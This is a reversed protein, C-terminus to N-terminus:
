ADVDMFDDACLNNALCQEHPDEAGCGICYDGPWGSWWHNRGDSLEHPSPCMANWVNVPCSLIHGPKPRISTAAFDYFKLHLKGFRVNLHGRMWSYFHRFCAGCYAVDFERFLHGSAPHYPGRCAFCRDLTYFEV